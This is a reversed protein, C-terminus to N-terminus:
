RLVGRKSSRVFALFYRIEEIEGLEKEIEAIAEELPRKSRFLTMYCKKVARITEASYGRRRMGVINVGHTEARNGVTTVWPLADRTIVSYGGIFAYRAVRCFQHVGSFAGITAHDGIEVHGALTAANALIIGNGVQCDHGIHTATMLLNDDGIRTVGGGGATGRNVTVGERIKNDAGIEFSTEEGDFKLDQPDGGLSAMPWVRTRPGIRGPGVVSVHSDLVVGEELVVRDGVVCFPGVRVDAALEAKRSVVASPHVVAAAM